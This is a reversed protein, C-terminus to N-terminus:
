WFSVEADWYTDHTGPTHSQSCTWDQPLDANEKPVDELMQSTFGNGYTTGRPHPLRTRVDNTFLKVGAIGVEFVLYSWRGKRDCLMIPNSVDNYDEM